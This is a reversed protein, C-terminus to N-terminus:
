LRCGDACFGVTFHIRGVYKLEARKECQSNKTPPGPLGIGSKENGQEGQAIEPFNRIM